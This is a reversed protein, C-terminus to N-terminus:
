SISSYAATVQIQRTTLSREMIEPSPGAVVRWANALVSSACLLRFDPARRRHAVVFRGRSNPRERARAAKARLFPPTPRAPPATPKFAHRCRRAAWLSRSKSVVSTDKARRFLPGYRPRPAFRWPLMVPISMDGTDTSDGKSRSPAGVAAHKALESRAFSDGDVLAGALLSIVISRHASSRAECLTPGLPQEGRGRFFPGGM